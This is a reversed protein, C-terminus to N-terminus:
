HACVMSRYLLHDREDIEPDDADAAGCINKYVATMFHFKWLVAPPFDEAWPSGSNKDGAPYRLFKGLIEEPARPSLSVVM